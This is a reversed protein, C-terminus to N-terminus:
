FGTGGVVNFVNLGSPITEMMFFNDADAYGLVDDQDQFTNGPELSTFEASLSYRGGVAQPALAIASFRTTAPTRPFTTTPPKNNWADERRPGSRMRSKPKVMGTSTPGVPTPTTEGIM